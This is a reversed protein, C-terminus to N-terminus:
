MVFNIEAPPPPVAIDDSAGISRNGVGISDSVWKFFSKFGSSDMTDLSVVHLAVEKLEDIKAKAGAACGIINAFPRKKIQPIINRYDQIDSPSGDTMIFLLPMWDGKSDETSLRVERDYCQCLLELAKGTFTPGSEPTRIIPLQFHELETLPMLQTVERDFTILSLWVTELAYPDQRLSSLMAQLGVNVAEIPEGQMSGSTDLLLYVPLRRM